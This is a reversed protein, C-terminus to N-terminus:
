WFSDKDLFCTLPIGRDRVRISVRAPISHNSQGIFTQPVRVKLAGPVIGFSVPTRLNTEGDVTVRKIPATELSGSDTEIATVQNLEVHHGGPLNLAFRCLGWWSVDLLAYVVLKGDTITADPALPFRGAHYRGNGIVVQLTKFEQVGDATTIKVRFPRVRALAHFLAVLYVARGLRRKAEGTLEEAILTTLGITAVNLFYETKNLIGLDVAETKGDAIVDCAGSINCPIHLDRAFQNGTGLPLVGLVSDSGVFYKVVSSLSGDGGGVIVLPIRLMITKQVISTLEQPHRLAHVETLEIGRSRLQNAADESSTQGIRSKTNIILAAQKYEPM